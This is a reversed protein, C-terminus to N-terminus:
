GHPASGKQHLRNNLNIGARCGFSMGAAMQRTGTRKEIVTIPAGPGDYRLYGEPPELTEITKWGAGIGFKLADENTTLGEYTVVLFDSAPFKALTYGKHVKDVPGVTLGQYYILFTEFTPKSM